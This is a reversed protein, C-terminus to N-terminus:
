CRWCNTTRLTAPASRKTLHRSPPRHLRYLPGFSTATVIAVLIAAMVVLFWLWLRCKKKPQAGLAKGCRGCFRADNAVEVGCQACFM